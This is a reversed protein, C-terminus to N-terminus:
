AEEGFTIQQGTLLEAFRLILAALEPVEQIDTAAKLSSTNDVAIVVYSRVTEAPINVLEAIAAAMKERAKEPNEAPPMIEVNSNM